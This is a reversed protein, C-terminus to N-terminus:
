PRAGTSAATTTRHGDATPTRDSTSGTPLWAGVGTTRGYVPRYRAVEAVATGSEHMRKRADDSLRVATRRQGLAVADLPSLGAGVLEVPEM